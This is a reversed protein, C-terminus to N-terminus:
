RVVGKELPIVDIGWRKYFFDTLPVLRSDGFITMNRVVGALSGKFHVVPLAITAHLSLALFRSIAVAHADGSDVDRLAERFSPWVRVPHKCLSMALLKNNSAIISNPALENLATIAKLHLKSSTSIGTVSSAGGRMSSACDLAKRYQRAPHVTCYVATNRSGPVEVNYYGMVPVLPKHNLRLYDWSFSASKERGDSAVLVGKIGGELSPGLPVFPRFASTKLSKVGILCESYNNIFEKAEDAM